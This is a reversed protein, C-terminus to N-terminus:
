GINAAVVQLIIHRLHVCPDAAAAGAEAFAREPKSAPLGWQIYIIYDRRSSFSTTQDSICRM